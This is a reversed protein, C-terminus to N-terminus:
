AAGSLAKDILASVKQVVIGRVEEMAGTLTAGAANPHGGGGLSEALSSVNVRGKSRFSVKIRGDGTERFLLAVEVDKVARPYNIFGDTDEASTGTEAYYKEYVSVWALRGDGSRELGSLVLGLLKMRPYSKTEYVHESIEWTNVGYSLLRGAKVLSEEDTNSYRFSGTDTFISTYLNTAIDKDVPADMAVLLDYVMEGAAAAEPDVWCIDATRPNTIHHDINVVKGVPPNDYDKMGTRAPECDLVIWLDHAAGLRGSLAIMDKGPLFSLFEPVPDSNIVSVKKGMKKLSLALGLVSGIADGEPSIHSSLVISEAKNIADIVAKIVDTM